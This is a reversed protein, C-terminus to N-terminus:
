IAYSIEYVEKEIESNQALARQKYSVPAGESVSLIAFM